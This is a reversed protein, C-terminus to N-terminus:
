PRAGRFHEHAGGPIRPLQAVFRRARRMLGKPSLHEIPVGSSSMSRQLEAYQRGSMLRRHSGTYREARAVQFAVWAAPAGDFQAIFREAGDLLAVPHPDDGELPVDAEIPGPVGAPEPEPNWDLAIYFCAGSGQWVRADPREGIVKALKKEAATRNAYKLFDGNEKAVTLMGNNLMATKM